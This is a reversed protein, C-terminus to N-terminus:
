LFSNCPCKVIFFFLFATEATLHDISTVPITQFFTLNISHVTIELLGKIFVVYFILKLVENM